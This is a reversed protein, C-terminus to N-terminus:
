QPEPWPLMFIVKTTSHYPTCADRRRGIPTEGLPLRAAIRLLDLTACCVGFPISWEGLAAFVHPWYVGLRSAEGGRALRGCEELLWIHVEMEGAGDVEVEDNIV